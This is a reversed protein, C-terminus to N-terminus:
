IGRHGPGFIQRTGGSVIESIFIINHLVFDV